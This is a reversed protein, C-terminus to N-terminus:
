LNAITDKEDKLIEKVAPVLLYKLSMKHKEAEARSDAM